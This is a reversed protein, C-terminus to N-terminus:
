AGGGAPPVAPTHDAARHLVANVPTVVLEDGDVVADADVILTHEGVTDPPWVLSVAPQLAVNAATRRGAGCVLVDGRWTPAVSVVRPRGEPSATLLYPTTGFREIAAALDDLAVPISV